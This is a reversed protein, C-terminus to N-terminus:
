TSPSFRKRNATGVPAASSGGVSTITVFQCAGSVRQCLAGGGREGRGRSATARAVPDAAMVERARAEARDLLGSVVLGRRFLAPVGDLRERVCRNAEDLTADTDGHVHRRVRRLEM